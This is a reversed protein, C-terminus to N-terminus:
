ALKTQSDDELGDFPQLIEFHFCKEDAFEYRELKFGLEASHGLRSIPLPIFERCANLFAEAQNESMYNHRAAGKTPGSYHAVDFVELFPSGLLHRSISEPGGQVNEIARILYRQVVDDKEKLRLKQAHAVINAVEKNKYNAPIKEVVHKQFFIRAQDQVSRHVNTVCVSYLKARASLRQLIDRSYSSIPMGSVTVHSHLAHHHISTAQKGMDIMRLHQSILSCVQNEQVTPMGHVELSYAVAVESAGRNV